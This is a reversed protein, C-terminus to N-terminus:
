GTTQDDEDGGRRKREPNAQEPKPKKPKPEDPGNARNM